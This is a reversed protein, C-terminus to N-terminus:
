LCMELIKKVNETSLKKFVGLDGFQTAQKAMFDFKSDDINIESLTTQIELSKFFDITADIGANAQEFQNSKKIGWVNEAFMAFRSVNEESLVYRMWNPLVIALGLGHTIDYAASLEHEIQHTAWDGRSKGYSILGNLALSSAWMLNARAEYNQPEDIAKRGYQITTKFIAEAMRDAIGATNTPEFYQEAVHAFIDVVGAATQDKPVSYTLTPDLVSFVPKTYDGGFPLKEGTEENSLVSNGNMESGTASLTLVTAIPLAGTVKAKRTCFLWPDTDSAVGAAMGKAADIVSGGGVALIFDLKNEKIVKMGEHVSKLEPNPKIGSVEAYFIDYKGLEDTIRNFLGSKKIRDSGYAILVRKSYKSIESGLKELTNEGFFVKTSINYTFNKM